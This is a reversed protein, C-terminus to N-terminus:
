DATAARCAAVMGPLSDRLNLRPSWPLEQQLKGSLYCASGLLRDLVMSTLPQTVGTIRGTLDGLCAGARLLPVPTSWQPITRGRAECMYDYMQRTSYHGNDSVIYIVGDIRSSVSVQVACEVLDDLGVMSRKNGTDPPPPFRGRDIAHLMRLLNGKVGAGYVLTPRLVNVRMSSTRGAALLRQEAERKSVGYPDAPMAQWSEDVCADGPDAVAKVSSFYVFSHVGAAAASRALLESGTVNVSHFLADPVGAQPMAHVVGALHFCHDVGAMAQAPVVGTSLDCLCTEDWPGDVPKRILARVHAGAQQLRRCLQRGIFGSAGTVLCTDPMDQGAM